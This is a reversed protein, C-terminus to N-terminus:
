SLIHYLLCINEFALLATVTALTFCGHGQIVLIDFIHHCIKLHVLRFNGSLIPPDGARDYLHFRDLSAADKEVLTAGDMFALGPAAPLPREM